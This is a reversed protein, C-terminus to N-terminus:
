HKRGWHDLMKDKRTFGNVGKRECAADPCDFEKPGAQHIRTHRELDGPRAFTKHCSPFQCHFKNTFPDITPPQPPRLTNSTTPYPNANTSPHYIINNQINTHGPHTENRLSTTLVNIRATYAQPTSPGPPFGFNTKVHQDLAEPTPCTIMCGPHLCM